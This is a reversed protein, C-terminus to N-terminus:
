CRRSLIRASLKPTSIPSSAPSTDQQKLQSSDVNALLNDNFQENLDSMRLLGIFFPIFFYTRHKIIRYFHAIALLGFVVAMIAGAPISPVYRYLKYVYHDSNGAM